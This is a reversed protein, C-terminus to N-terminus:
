KSSLKRPAFMMVLVMWVCLSFYGTYWIMFGIGGWTNYDRTVNVNFFADKVAAWGLRIVPNVAGDKFQDVAYPWYEFPLHYCLSYATYGVTFIALVPTFIRYLKLEKKSENDKYSYVRKLHILSVPLIFLFAVGWLTEEIAFLAKFKTVLATNAFFQATFICLFAYFPFYKEMFKVAKGTTGEYPDPIERSIQQYSYMILLIFSVEAFCAFFRIIVSSNFITDFWALQTLYQSIFFSRYLAVSIFIIGLIRMRKQYNGETTVEAKKSKNFIVIGLVMNIVGITAMISWWPWAWATGNM